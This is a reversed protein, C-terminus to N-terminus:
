EKDSGKLEKLTALCYEMADVRDYDEELKSENIENEILKNFENIINNLKEIEEKLQKNEQQLVPRSLLKKNWSEDTYEILDSMLYILDLQNCRPANFHILRNKDVWMKIISGEWLEALRNHNLKGTTIFNYDQLKDIPINDKIKLM